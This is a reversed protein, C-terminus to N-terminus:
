HESGWGAQGQSDASIPSGVKAHLLKPLYLSVMVLPPIECWFSQPSARPQVKGEALGVRATCPSQNGHSSLQKDRICYFFSILFLNRLPLPLFYKVGSATGRWQRFDLLRTRPVPMNTRNCSLCEWVKDQVFRFGM